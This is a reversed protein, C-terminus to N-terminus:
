PGGQQRLFSLFAETSAARAAVCADVFTADGARALVFTGLGFHKKQQIFWHVYADYILGLLLREAPALPRKGAVIAAFSGEGPISPNGQLYGSSAVGRAENGIGLSMFLDYVDQYTM